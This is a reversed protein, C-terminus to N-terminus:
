SCFWQMGQHFRSPETVSVVRDNGNLPASGQGGERGGLLVCVVSASVARGGVHDGEKGSWKQIGSKNLLTLFNLKQKLKDERCM